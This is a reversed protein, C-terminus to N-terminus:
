WRVMESLVGVYNSLAGGRPVTCDSHKLTRDWIVSLHLLYTRNVAETRVHIVHWGFTPEDVDLMKRTTTEIVVLM